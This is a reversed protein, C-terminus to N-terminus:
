RKRRNEKIGVMNATTPDDIAGERYEFGEVSDNECIALPKM